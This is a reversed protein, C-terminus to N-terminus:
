GERQLVVIAQGQWRVRYRAGRVVPDDLFGQVWSSTENEYSITELNLVLWEPDVPEGLDDLYGDTPRWQSVEFRDTLHNTLYVDAGVWSGDPIMATAEDLEACATGCPEGALDHLVSGTPVSVLAVAVMVPLALPRWVRVARARA